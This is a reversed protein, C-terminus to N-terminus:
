TMRVYGYKRYDACTKELRPDLYTTQDAHRCAVTLEKQVEDQKDVRSADRARMMHRVAFLSQGFDEMDAVFAHNKVGSDTHMKKTRELRGITLQLMNAKQDDRQGIYGDYILKTHEFELQAPTPEVRRDKETASTVPILAFSVFLSVVLVALLSLPKTM